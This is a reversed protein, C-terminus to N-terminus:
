DKQESRWELYLESAINAIIDAGGAETSDNMAAKKSEVFIKFDDDSRWRTALIRRADSSPMKEYLIGRIAKSEAVTTFAWSKIPSLFNRYIQLSSGEKALFSAMFVGRSQVYRELLEMATASLGLASQISRQNIANGANMIFVGSMTKTLGEMDDISQSALNLAIGFKRGERAVQELVRWLSDIGMKRNTLPNTVTYNHLEDYTITKIEAAVDAAQIRWYEKYADPTFELDDKHVYFNRTAANHAFMCMLATQKVGSEGQGRVDNLDIGIVRCNRLDWATPRSFINYDRVVSAIMRSCFDILREGSGEVNVTGYSDKIANSNLVSAIDSLLPVAYRNALEAEIVLNKAFLADVLEYWITHEDVLIAHEDIAKDILPVLNREYKNATQHYAKQKYLEDIALGMIEYVSDYPKIKGAPTCILGLFSKLFSMEVQLPFRLGLRTDFVNVAYKEDLKIKFFGVEHKRNAPLGAQLLSTLGFVSEGVDIHAILPLRSLGPALCQAMEITLMLNSKGSGPPAVYGNVWFNQKSSGPQFPLLKKDLSTLLVAGTDWMSVPRGIPMLKAILSSEMLMVRGGLSSSYAPLSSAYLEIADGTQISADFGGWGQLNSLIKQRYEDVVNPDKDWTTIVISVAMTPDEKIERARLEEMASKIRRNISKPFLSLMGVMMSDFQRMDLGKSYVRMSMRFPIGRMAADGTLFQNYNKSAEWNPPLEAVVSAYHLGNSIVHGTKADEEMDEDFLQRWLAPFGIIPNSIEKAYQSTKVTQPNVPRPIIPRWGRSTKNNIEFKLEVLFEDIPVREVSLKCQKLTTLISSTFGSHITFLSDIITMPNQLLSFDGKVSLLERAERLIKESRKKFADKIERGLSAPHTNVIILVGEKVSQNAVVDMDAQLLDEIDLGIRQATARFPAMVRQAVLGSDGPSQTYVYQIDLGVNKMMQDKMMSQFELIMDNQEDEGIIERCGNLRIVTALSGDKRVL